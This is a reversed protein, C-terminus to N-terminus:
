EYGEQALFEAPAAEERRLLRQVYKALIDSELNVRDGCKRRCLNTRRWTEPIIAFSAVGNKLGAVTLSIGDVALSGKVAVYPAVVSPLLVELEAFGGGIPLIRTIEGVGDVHGQVFHGGMEAGARVPRELNVIDGPRLDALATKTWTELSVDFSVLRGRSRAVTLCVGNVAISAGRRRGPPFPLRVELRNRDRSHIRGTGEILGTFM